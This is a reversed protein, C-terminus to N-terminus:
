FLNGITSTCNYRQHFSIERCHVFATCMTCVICVICVTCVTCVCYMCYVCLVYLVCQVFLVYTCYVCLVHLVCVTCVTCVTCVCYVTCMICVTHGCIEGTLQIATESLHLSGDSACWYVRSCWLPLWGGGRGGPRPCVSSCPPRWWM